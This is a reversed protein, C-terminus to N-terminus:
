KERPLIPELNREYWQKELGERKIVNYEVSSGRAKYRQLGGGRYYDTREDLFRALDKTVSSNRLFSLASNERRRVSEISIGLDDSLVRLSKNNWYRERLVDGQAPPLQSIAKDLATHLQQQYIHEEVEAYRDDTDPLFDVFSESAEDILSLPADLSSSLNLPDRRSTRYGGVAAFESKLYKELWSLFTGKEIDFKEVAAVLAIYGSQTLDDVTVGHEPPISRMARIARQRVFANVQEWLQHTLEQRGQQIRIVLEENTM